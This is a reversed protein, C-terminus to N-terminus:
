NDAFGQIERIRDSYATESVNRDEDLNYLFDVKEPLRALCDVTIREYHQIFRLLQKSNMLSGGEATKSFVLKQEQELRWSFVSKFSPAKLMIWTDFRSFVPLYHIRLQQNVYKRWRADTDETKELDNIPDSLHVVDVPEAGLCWGELLIINLRQDVAPWHAKPRRDDISKDFRPILTGNSKREDILRDLTENLFAIDHTGPVGRTALLPHIDRALQLRAEHGLYFDDLSLVEVGDGLISFLYTALFDALTSKGSGQCGNLAVLIPASSNDACQHLYKILPLYWDGAKELYTKSLHHRDLFDRWVISQYNISMVM